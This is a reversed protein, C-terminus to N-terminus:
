GPGPRRCRLDNRGRPPRSPLCCSSLYSSSSEYDVLLVVLDTCARAQVGQKAQLHPLHYAGRAQQQQEQHRPASSAPDPGTPLVPLPLGPLQQHSIIIATLVPSYSLNFASTNLDDSSIQFVRDFAERERFLM